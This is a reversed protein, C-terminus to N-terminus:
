KARHARRWLSAAGLSLGAFALLCLASPEPVVDFMLMDVGPRGVNETGDWYNIGIKKIFSGDNTTFGFFNNSWDGDSVSAAPIKISALLENGLGWADVQLYDAGGLNNAYLMWYGGIKTVKDSPMTLMFPSLSHEDDSAGREVLFHDGDPLAITSHITGYDGFGLGQQRKYIAIEPQNSGLYNPIPSTLAIGSQSFVYDHSQSPTPALGPIIIWDDYSGNYSISNSEDRAEEFSEYVTRSSFQDLGIQILEVAEARASAFLLAVIALFAIVSRM